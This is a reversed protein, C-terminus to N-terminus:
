SPDQSNLSSFANIQMVERTLKLFVEELHGNVGSQQRLTEMTGLAILRSQDIIGIRDALEEALPLTHTSIFITMGEKSKTKLIDKVLRSSRPDLGVMPEDILMVQPEHILAACMILRQRMGHSFDETLHDRYSSLGFLDLLATAKKEIDRPSFNYLRAVFYLFEFATLKEYLYPVDPVYSLLQRAKLYDRGSVDHGGVLIRGETPKLLGAMLKITTTKGAANPGLFAFLEGKPIELSLKDVATVQGFKKTLNQISIM